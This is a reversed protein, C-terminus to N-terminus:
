YIVSTLGAFVASAISNGNPKLVRTVWFFWSNCPTWIGVPLAIKLPFRAFWQTTYLCEATM